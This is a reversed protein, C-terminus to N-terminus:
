HEDLAQQILLHLQVTHTSMQNHKAIPLELPVDQKIVVVQTKRM